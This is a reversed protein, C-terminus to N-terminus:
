TSTRSSPGSPRRRGPSPEQIRDEDTDWGYIRTPLQVLKFYNVMPRLGLVYLVRESLREAMREAVYREEMLNRWPGSPVDTSLERGSAREFGGLMNLDAGDAYDGASRVPLLGLRGTM